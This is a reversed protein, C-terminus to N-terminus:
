GIRFPSSHTDTDSYLAQVQARHLHELRFWVSQTTPLKDVGQDPKLQKFLHWRITKAQSTHLQKRCFVSCLLEECGVFVLNLLQLLFQPAQMLSLQSANRLNNRKRTRASNYRVQNACPLPNASISKQVQNTM